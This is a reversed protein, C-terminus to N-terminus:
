QWGKARFAPVFEEGIWLRDEPLPVTYYQEPPILINDNKSLDIVWRNPARRQALFRLEFPSLKLPDPGFIGQGNQRAAKVAARAKKVAPDQAVKSNTTGPAPIAAIWSSEKRFPNINPFLFYPEALGADLLRQNYEPPRPETKQERNIFGLMRGYRDMIEYAFALFFRFNAPTTGQDAIDQDIMKELAREASEAHTHHNVAVTPGFKAKLHAVLAPDLKLKPYKTEDLPDTLFDVWKQHDTAYFVTTPPESPITFTIEPTDIGLFRIGLNGLACVNITDGDHVQQKVSGQVDGYHGLGFHGVTLNGKIQEIAKAMIVRM